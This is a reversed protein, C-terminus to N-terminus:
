KNIAIVITYIMCNTASAITSTFFKCLVTQFSFYPLVEGNYRIEFGGTDFVSFTGKIPWANDTGDVGDINYFYGSIGPNIIAGYPAVHWAKQKDHQLDYKYEAGIEMIHSDYKACTAVDLYRLTRNLKNKGWGYDATDDHPRRMGVHDRDDAIQNYLEGKERNLKNLWELGWNIEDIIDPINDRVLKPKINNIFNLDLYKNM